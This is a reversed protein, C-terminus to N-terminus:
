AGGVLRRLILHIPLLGVLVELSRSQTDRFAGMIWCARWLLGQWLHCLTTKYHGGKFFWLRAMYTMIPIICSKVLLRKLRSSLGRASNGLSLMARTSTLAKNAYCKIHERFTLM